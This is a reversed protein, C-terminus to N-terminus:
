KNMSGASLSKGSKTKLVTRIPCSIVLLDALAEKLRTRIYVVGGSKGKSFEDESRIADTLESEADLIM